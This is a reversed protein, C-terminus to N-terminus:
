RKKAPRTAAAKARSGATVAAITRARHALHATALREFQILYTPRM